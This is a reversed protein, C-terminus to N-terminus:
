SLDPKAAGVPLRRDPQLLPREIEASLLSVCTRVVRALKHDIRKHNLGGSNYDREM